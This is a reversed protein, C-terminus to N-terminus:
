CSQSLDVQSWLMEAYTKEEERDEEVYDATEIVQDEEDSFEDIMDETSGIEALNVCDKDSRDSLARSMAQMTAPNDGPGYKPVPVVFPMVVEDLNRSCQNITGNMPTPPFVFIIGLEYNCVHLKLGLSSNNKGYHNSIPRGWAAPSFNHSGCYVWGCSSGEIKSEFRRWAVESFCLLHKSPWIGSCANKVREITPFIIRISPLKSELSANWCGWEPDSEESDFLQMSRKGVAASFASIFQPNVSSGISSSGYFFDFEQSEPWKYQCLVEQLRWLGTYREISAILSCLAIAHEQQLMNPMGSFHPGQSVYLILPVRTNSGGLAAELAEEPRIYGSFRFFGFDWLPSVWKAVKRPLFGLQVCDGEGSFEDPDAVLVSVANADAPVNANRRLVIEALGFNNKRFNRLYAAMRKLRAGNSDAAAHFLHSLGVVSAEVSGLFMSGFSWSPVSQSSMSESMYSTRRSYIGPVSAVLHGVAEGFDFKTLEVIWHAQSPVDIVLSSMFGALQAAFDSKSDQNVEGNPVRMFLSSYDPASRRPFDQWWVTNTVNNWQKAVLNASTIIVRICEERQLVILKPHHCAVGRKKIDKGFAVAEPFPPYVVVLSPFDPYPMCTRKEPSSSWCRESNHCAITVPLHSPIECYSLFWLIDSTFTAIFIQSISELPYFLEPLSIMTPCGSAMFELRNLLFKKGPASCSSGCLKKQTVDSQSAHEEVLLNLLSTNATDNTVTNEPPVGITDKRHLHDSKSCIYATEHNVIKGTNQDIPTEDYLMCELGTILADNKMNSEGTTLGKADEDTLGPSSRARKRGFGKTDIGFNLVACRQIYSIPDVSRLIGRCQSLLFKTRQVVDGCRSASFDFGLPMVDTERCSYVRKSRKGSSVSGQSQGLSNTGEFLRARELRMDNLGMFVEESFVIGIIIFGVRIHSLCVGEESGCVLLVEDGACLESCGKRVRVGNVFVGNLSARAKFQELIEEKEELEKCYLLRKRFVDIFDSFTHSLIAGDIIYIKRDVSDFFIQCHQKSVRHDEVILQCNRKSRGITCPRGPELLLLDCSCSTATSILPLDLSRIRIRVVNRSKKLPLDPSFLQDAEIRQNNHLSVRLDKM